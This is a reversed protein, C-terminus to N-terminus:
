LGRRIRTASSLTRGTEGSIPTQSMITQLESITPLRWTRGTEGSIPTQSKVQEALLHFPIMLGVPRGASLPKHCNDRVDYYIVGNRGVPRGASLPKHSQTSNKQM